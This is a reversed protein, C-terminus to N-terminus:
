KQTAGRCRPDITLTWPNFIIVVAMAQSLCTSGPRTITAQLVSLVRACHWSVHSTEPPSLSKRSTPADTCQSVINYSPYLKGMRLLQVIMRWDTWDALSEWAELSEESAIVNRLSKNSMSFSCFLPGLDLQTSPLCAIVMSVLFMEHLCIGHQANPLARSCRITRTHGTWRGNVGGEMM